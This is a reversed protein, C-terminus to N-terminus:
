FVRSSSRNFGDCACIAFVVSSRSSAQRPMCYTTDEDVDLISSHYRPDYEFEPM